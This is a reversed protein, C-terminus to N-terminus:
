GDAISLVIPTEDPHQADFATRSDYALLAGCSGEPGDVEQGGVGVSSWPFMRKRVYINSPSVTMAEQKAEDSM